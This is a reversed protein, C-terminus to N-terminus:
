CFATTPALGQLDSEHWKSTGTLWTEHLEACVLSVVLSNQWTLQDPAKSKATPKLMSEPDSVKERDETSDGWSLCLLGGEQTRHATPKSVSALM